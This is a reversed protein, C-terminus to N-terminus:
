PLFMWSPRVKVTRRRPRLIVRRAHRRGRQRVCGASQRSSQRFRRTPSSRKRFLGTTDCFLTFAHLARKERTKAKPESGIRKPARPRRPTRPLAHTASLHPLRGRKGCHHLTGLWAKRIFRILCHIRSIRNKRNARSERNRRGSGGRWVRAATSTRLGRHDDATTPQRQTCPYSGHLHALM